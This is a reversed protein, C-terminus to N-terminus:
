GLPTDSQRAAGHQRSHHNHCRKHAHSPKRANQQAAQSHGLRQVRNSYSRMMFEFNLLDSKLSWMQAQEASGIGKALFYDCRQQHTRKQLQAYFDMVAGVLKPRYADPCHRVVERRLMPNM